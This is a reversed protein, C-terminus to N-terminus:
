ALRGSVKASRKGRGDAVARTPSRRPAIPRGPPLPLPRLQRAGRRGWALGSRDRDAHAAIVPGHRVRKSTHAPMPLGAELEDRHLIHSAQGTQFRRLEQMPRANLLQRANALAAGSFLEQTNGDFEKDFLRPVSFANSGASRRLGSHARHGQSRSPTFRSHSASAERLHQLLDRLRELVHEPDPLALPTTAASLAVRRLRTRAQERQLRHRDRTRGDGEPRGQVAPRLRRVPLSNAESHGGPRLLDRSGPPQDALSM